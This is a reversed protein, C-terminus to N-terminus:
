SKGFGQIIEQLLSSSLNIQRFVPLDVSSIRPIHFEAFSKGFIATGSMGSLAPQDINLFRQLTAVGCRWVSLFISTEPNM